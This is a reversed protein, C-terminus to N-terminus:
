KSESFMGAIRSGSQVAAFQKLAENARAELTNISKFRSNFDAISMQNRLSVYDGGSKVGILQGKSMTGISVGPEVSMNSTMNNAM